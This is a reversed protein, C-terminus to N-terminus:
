ETLVSNNLYFALFAAKKIDDLNDKFVEKWEDFEDPYNLYSLLISGVKIRTGHIRVAGGVVEENQDLMDYYRDYLNENLGSLFEKYESHNKLRQIFDETNQVAFKPIYMEDGESFTEKEEDESNNEKDEFAITQADM